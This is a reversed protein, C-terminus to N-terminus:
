TATGGIREEKTAKIRYISGRRDKWYSHRRAANEDLFRVGDELTINEKLIYECIKERKDNFREKVIYM